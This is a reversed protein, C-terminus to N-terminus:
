SMWLSKEQNLLRRLNTVIKQNILLKVDKNKEIFNKMNNEYKYGQLEQNQSLLVKNKTQMFMKQLYEGLMQSDLAKPPTSIHRYLDLESRYRNFNKLSRASRRSSLQDNTYNLSEAEETVCDDQSQFVLMKEKVKEKSLHYQGQFQKLLEPSLGKNTIIVSQRQNITTYSKRLSQSISKENKNNFSNQADTGINITVIYGEQLKVPSEVTAKENKQIEKEKNSYAQRLNLNQINLRDEHFKNGTPIPSDPEQFMPPNEIKQLRSTQNTMTRIKSPSSQSSISKQVLDMMIESNTILDNPNLKLGKLNNMKKQSTALSPKRVRMKLQLLQIKQQILQKEDENPPILKHNNQMLPNEAPQIKQKRNAIELKLFNRGQSDFDAPTGILDQDLGSGHVFTQAKLNYDITKPTFGRMAILEPFQEKDNEVIQVQPEGEHPEQKTYDFKQIKNKKNNKIKFKQGYNQQQSARLDDSIIEMNKIINMEKSSFNENRSFNSASSSNKFIQATKQFLHNIKDNKSISINSFDAKRFTRKSDREKQDNLFKNLDYHKVHKFQNFKSLSMYPSLQFQYQQGSATNKVNTQNQSSFRAKLKETEDFKGQKYQRSEQMPLSRWQTHPDFYSQSKMFASSSQTDKSLINEAIISSLQQKQPKEQQKFNTAKVWDYM